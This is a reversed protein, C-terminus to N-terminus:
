AKMLRKIGVRLEMYNQKVHAIPPQYDIEHVIKNRLKHAEWIANYTSRDFLNRANKLREGLTNGRVRKQQLVADLIADLQILATRIDSERGGQVLLDITNMKNNITDRWGKPNARTVFWLAIFLAAIVICLVIIFVTEM